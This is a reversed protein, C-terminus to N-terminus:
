LLSTAAAKLSYWRTVSPCVSVGGIGIYRELVAYSLAVVVSTNSALFQVTEVARDASTSDQQLTFLEGAALQMELSEPDTKWKAWWQPIM